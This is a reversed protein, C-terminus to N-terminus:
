TRKKGYFDEDTVEARNLDFAHRIAEIVSVPIDQSEIHCEIPQHVFKGAVIGVFMRAAGHDQPKEEAIGHTRLIRRLQRYPLPRKSM